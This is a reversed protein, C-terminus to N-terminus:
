SMGGPLFEIGDLRYRRRSPSRARGGSDARGARRSDAPQRVHLQHRDLFWRWDAQERGGHNMPRGAASEGMHVFEMGLKRINAMDRPWQSEPWAAPYYHVGITLMDSPPCWDAPAASAASSLSLLALAALVRLAIM